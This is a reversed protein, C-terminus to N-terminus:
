TIISGSFQTCMKNLSIRLQHHASIKSSLDSIRIVGSHLCKVQRSGHTSECVMRRVRLDRKGRHQCDELIRVGSMGCRLSMYEFPSIVMWRGVLSM